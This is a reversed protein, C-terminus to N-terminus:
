VPRDSVRTAVPGPREKPGAVPPNAVGGPWGLPRRTPRPDPRGSPGPGTELVVRPALPSPEGANGPSTVDVTQGVMGVKADYFARGAARRDVLHTPVPRRRGRGVPTDPAAVPGGHGLSSPCFPVRPHGRGCLAAGMHPPPRGADYPLGGTESALTQRLLYTTWM